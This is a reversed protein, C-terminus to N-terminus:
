SVSWRLYKLDTADPIPALCIQQIQRHSSRHDFRIQSRAPSIGSYHRDKLGLRPKLVTCEFTQITSIGGRWFLTKMGLGSPAPLLTLVQPASVTPIGSMHATTTLMQMDLVPRRRRVEAWDDSMMSACMDTVDLAIVIQM